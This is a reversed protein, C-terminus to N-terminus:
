WTKGCECRTIGEAIEACVHESSKSGLRLKRRLTNRWTSPSDSAGSAAAAAATSSASAPSAAPQRGLEPSSYSWRDDGVPLAPRAKAPPQRLSAFGSADDGTQFGLLLAQQKAATQADPTGRMAMTNWSRSRPRDGWAELSPRSRPAPADRSETDDGARAVAAAAPAAAVVAPATAGGSAAETAPAGQESVSSASRTPTAGAAAVPEDFGYFTDDGDVASDTGGDAEQVVVRISPRSPRRQAMRLSLM